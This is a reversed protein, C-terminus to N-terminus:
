CRPVIADTAATAAAAVAVPPSAASAAMGRPTALGLPSPRLRGCPAGASQAPGPPRPPLAAGAAALQLSLLPAHAWILCLPSSAPPPSPSFPLSRLLSPVGPYLVGARLVGTCMTHHFINPLVRWYFSDDGSLSGCSLCCASFNVTVWPTLYWTWRRTIRLSCGFRWHKYPAPLQTKQVVKRPSSFKHDSTYVLLVASINM